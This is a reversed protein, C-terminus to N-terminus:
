INVGCTVEFKRRNRDAGSPDSTSTFVVESFVNSEEMRQVFDMVDKESLAIGQLVLKEGEMEFGTLWGREPIMSQVKDMAIVERLRGKALEEIVKLRNELRTREKEFRSVVEVVSGLRNVEETAQNLQVRAAAINNHKEQFLREEYMKLAYPVALILLLKLLLARRDGTNVEGYSIGGTTKVIPASRLDLNKLLNIQIM